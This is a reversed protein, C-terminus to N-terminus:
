GLHSRKELLQALLEFVSDATSARHYVIGAERCNAELNDLWIQLATQYDGRIASPELTQRFDSEVDRFESRNRYPFDVEDPALLHLVIVEQKRFRLFRLSALLTEPDTLLDSIILIAGRRRLREALSELYGPLDISGGPQTAELQTVVQHFQDGRSSSPIEHITEGALVTCAVADHQALFLYCLSAALNRAFRWKNQASDRPFNMSNSADMIISANLNTEDQFLKVHFKDTRAVVKWDISRIPDGPSYPRHDLYEVSFGRFPSRHRGTLYGEVIGRAIWELDGVVSFDVAEEAM